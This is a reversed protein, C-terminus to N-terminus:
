SRPIRRATSRAPSRRAAADQDRLGSPRARAAVVRSRRRAHTGAPAGACRRAAGTTAMVPSASSRTSRAPGQRAGVTGGAHVDRRRDVDLGGRGANAAPNLIPTPSWSCARRRTRRRAGVQDHRPADAVKLTNLTMVAQIVVDTDADKPLAAYDAAFRDPRRGQLADRQRPDGPHPDASRCGEDARARSAADLAGLGELTWMAHIRALQNPAVDRWSSSRRCSRSTRSSCSCSSRRTAGGATRIARPAGRAAGADRQLM